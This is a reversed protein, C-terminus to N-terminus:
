KRPPGNIAILNGDPDAVVFWRTGWHTDQPEIRVHEGAGLREFRAELDDTQLHVTPQTGRRGSRWADDDEDPHPEALVVEVGGGSQLVAGRSGPADGWSAVLSWGLRDRYFALSADFDSPAIFLHHFADPTATM